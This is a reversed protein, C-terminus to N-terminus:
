DSIKATVGLVTDYLHHPNEAMVFVDVHVSFRVSNGM